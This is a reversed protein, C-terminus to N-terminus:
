CELRPTASMSVQLTHVKVSSQLPIFLLLQDDAGSQVWDKSSAAAKGKELGSPKSTDFLVKVPGSDEDANLIECNRLEVQDTIDSYGRPVEAGRWDGSGSSSAGADDGLAQIFSVLTSELERPNAGQVKKVVKGNQFLLFTPLAAVNYEKALDKHNDTNVKVFTAVKERSFQNSLSAFLPAIQKCPGCWDAYVQDLDTSFYGDPLPRM